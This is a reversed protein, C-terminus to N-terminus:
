IPFLPEPLGPTEVRFKFLNGTLPHRKMMDKSVGDTASTIFVDRLEEGGFCLTTVNYAPVEIRRMVQGHSSLCIIAGGNWMACWVMGLADVVLGDPMGENEEFQHLVRRNRPSLDKENVDYAFCTRGLSDSFYLVRGDRSFAPGNSVPFGADGLCWISRSQVCWLAGRPEQEKIHSTGVWLRGWRDVKIDNYIIADRGQEPDCFFEMKLTELHLLSLGGRHAFIVRRPDTTAAISGIPPPLPLPHRETKETAPDHMFLAPDMLDVWLLRRSAAHWIVSEGLRNNARIWLEAKM